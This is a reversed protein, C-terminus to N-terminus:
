YYYNGAFLCCPDLYLIFGDCTNVKGIRHKLVYRDGLIEDSSLIYDYNQDDYGDNYVGGRNQDNKERLRQAKAEYYVRNIHKYTDILKVSLKYVPRETPNRFASTEPFSIATDAASEVILGEDVSISRPSPPKSMQLYILQDAPLTGCASV